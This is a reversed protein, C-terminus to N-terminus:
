TQKIDDLTEAVVIGTIPPGNSEVEIQLDDALYGSPLTFTDRSLVAEDIVLVGDAWMRFQVPYTDAIVEAIGPNAPAPLRFVKSRFRVTMSAAGADWKRINIGDLVFLAGQVEDYYVASFGTDFFYVSTPNLPDIMLGNWGTGDNYLGMFRGFYQGGVMTEPHLARWDEPNLLGKTIITPPVGVGAYALGDASPWCAGHKFGVVGAASLCPAIFAVPEDDMAEPASGSVLRPAGTTLILLNKVFSVLAIPTDTCLTEYAAPWAHPKDPECYRVSKGTIGAMMGNWLAILGHLDAPPPLWVRGLQGSPGNTQLTDNGVGTGDDTSTLAVAIERLFFFEANGSTGSQTRYIRIRNINTSGGPPAALNVIDLHAGPKVTV